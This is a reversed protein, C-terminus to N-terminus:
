ANQDDDNLRLKSAMYDAVAPPWNKVAQPHFINLSSGPKFFGVESIDDNARIDDADSALRCLYWRVLKGNHDSDAIHRVPEVAAGLEEKMERRLGDEPPEGSNLMGGPIHWGDSLAHGPREVKKGIVVGKSTEIIAVVATKM